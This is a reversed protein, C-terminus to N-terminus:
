NTQVGNISRKYPEASRNFFARKGRVRADILKSILLKRMETVKKPLDQGIGCGSGKTTGLGKFVRGYYIDLLLLSFFGCSLYLVSNRDIYVFIRVLQAISELPTGLIDWKHSSEKNKKSTHTKHVRRFARPCVIITYNSFSLSILVFPFCLTFLGPM